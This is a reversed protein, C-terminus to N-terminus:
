RVQGDPSRQLELAPRSLEAIDLRGSLVLKWLADQGRPGGAGDLLYMAETFAPWSTLM